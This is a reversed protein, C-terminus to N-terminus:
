GLMVKGAWDFGIVQLELSEDDDDIDDDDDDDDDIKNVWATRVRRATEKDGGNTEEAKQDITKKIMM